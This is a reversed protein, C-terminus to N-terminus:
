PKSIQQQKAGADQAKSIADKLNRPLNNETKAVTCSWTGNKHKNCTILSGNDKPDNDDWSFCFSTKKDNTTSCHLGAYVPSAGLAFLAATLLAPVVFQKTIIMAEETPCM